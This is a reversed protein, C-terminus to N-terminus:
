EDPALYGHITAFAHSNPFDADAVCIETGRKIAIGNGLFVSANGNGDNDTLVQADVLSRMCGSGCPVGFRMQINRSTGSSNLTFQVNTVVLVFGKAVRFTRLTGDSRVEADVRKAGAFGASCFTSEVRVTVLESPKTPGLTQAAAREMSISALASVALLGVAAKSLRIM